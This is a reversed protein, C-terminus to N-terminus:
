FQLRKRQKCSNLVAETENNCATTFVKPFTKMHFCGDIKVRYVEPSADCQMSMLSEDCMKLCGEFFCFRHLYQDEVVGIM